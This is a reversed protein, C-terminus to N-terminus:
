FVLSEFLLLIIAIGYKGVPVFTLLLSATTIGMTISANVACTVACNRIRGQKSIEFEEPTIAPVKLKLKQEEKKIDKYTAYIELGSTVCVAVAAAGLIPGVCRHIVCCKILM